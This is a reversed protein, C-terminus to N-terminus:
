TRLIFRVTANGGPRGDHNGDLRNGALNTIGAGRVTLIMLKDTRQIRAHLVAKRTKPDYSVFLIKGGRLGKAGIIKLSYNKLSRVSRSDMPEDFEIRLSIVTRDKM